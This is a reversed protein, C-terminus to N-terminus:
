NSARFVMTKGTFGKPLQKSADPLPAERLQFVAYDGPANRAAKEDILLFARLHGGPGEGILVDMRVPSDKRLSFWSGKYFPCGDPSRDEPEKSNVEPIIKEDPFNGDLVERGNIRVMLIDDGYGVFRFDGDRPPIITTTYHIVWRRPVVNKEVSFAKPAEEALIQPIFIQTTSLRNPAKYFSALSTESWNNRVFGSLTKCYRKMQPFNQWGGAPSQSNLEAGVPAMDNPHLSQGQKLDYFTGVLGYPVGRIIPDGFPKTGNGKGPVLTVPGDGPGTIGPMTPVASVPGISPIPSNEITVSTPRDVAIRQAPAPISSSPKKASPNGPPQPPPPPLLTKQSPPPTPKEYRQVVYWAALVAFGVHALISIYLFLGGKRRAKPVPNSTSPPLTPTNM